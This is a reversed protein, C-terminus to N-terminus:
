DLIDLIKCNLFCNSCYSFFLSLFRFSRALIVSICVCKYPSFCPAPLLVIFAGAISIRNTLTTFPHVSSIFDFMLNYSIFHLWSVILSFLFLLTNLLQTLSRINGMTVTAQGIDTATHDLVIDTAARNIPNSACIGSLSPINM